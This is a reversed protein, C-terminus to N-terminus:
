ERVQKEIEVLSRMCALKAQEYVLGGQYYVFFPARLPGDASVEISSGDIFGGSAMVVPDSYGPMDWPYPVVESGVSAASQVARCFAVVKDASGLRICQIIDSRPDEAAPVVAYGAEAFVEAFLLAGRLAEMTIHPALFFGQLTLRTTGFTLGTEKGLGPATLHNICREILARRGAIYGGSVAIGGGPNKILSGAIIDAGAELPERKETFEGYCNDVMIIANPQRKRIFLVAEEIEAITFARRDSYGTSRQLEVLKVPTQLAHDLANWDIQGGATLAVGEYVVGKELLTGVESGRIGIVEQLTDYPHGTAAIMRDGNRLLSFLITSLAHTGSSISPRVIADEARFVDRFIHEAKERGRDGYGYGTASFFDAQSLENRQFAALVKLQNYEKIEALAHFRDALRAEARRVRQVAEDPIHYLTHYLDATNRYISEDTAEIM